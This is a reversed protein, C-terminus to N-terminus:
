EHTQLAPTPHRPTWSLPACAHLDFGFVAFGVTAWTAGGLAASLSAVTRPPLPRLLRQGDSSALPRSLLTSDSSLSTNWVQLQASVRVRASLVLPRLLAFSSLSPSSVLILVPRAHSSPFNRGPSLICRPRRVEIGPSVYSAAMGPFPIDYRPQSVIADLVDAIRDIKSGTAVLALASLCRVLYADITDDEIAAAIVQLTQLAAVQADDTLEAPVATNSELADAVARLTIADGRAASAM